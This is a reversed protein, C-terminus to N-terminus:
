QNSGSLSTETADIHLLADLKFFQLLGLVQPNVQTLRLSRGQLQARRTLELLFAAGASDIRTVESLDLSDGSFDSAGDLLAEVRPFGLDGQLKM